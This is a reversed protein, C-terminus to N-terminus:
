VYWAEEDREAADEEAGVMEDEEVLTTAMTREYCLQEAQCRGPRHFSRMGGIFDGQKMYVEAENGGPSYASFWQAHEEVPNTAGIWNATPFWQMMTAKSVTAYTQVWVITNGDSRDTTHVMYNFQCTNFAEVASERGVQHYYCLSWNRSLNRDEYPWPTQM